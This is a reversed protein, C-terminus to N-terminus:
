DNLAAMIRLPRSADALSVYASLSGIGFAKSYGIVMRKTFSWCQVRVAAETIKQRCADARSFPQHPIVPSMLAM